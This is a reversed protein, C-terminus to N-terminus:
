LIKMVLYNAVCFDLKIIHLFRFLRFMCLMFPFTVLEREPETVVACSWVSWSLSIHDCVRWIVEVEEWGILHTSIRLRLRQCTKSDAPRRGSAIQGRSPICALSPLRYPWWHQRGPWKETWTWTMEPTPEPRGKWTGGLDMMCQKNWMVKNFMVGTNHNHTCHPQCRCEFNLCKREVKFTHLCVSSLQVFVSWVFHITSIDFLLNAQNHCRGPFPTPPPPALCGSLGTGCGPCCCTKM